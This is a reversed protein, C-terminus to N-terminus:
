RVGVPRIMSIATLLFPVKVVTLLGPIKPQEKRIMSTHKFTPSRRMINSRLDNMKESYLQQVCTRHGFPLDQLHVYTACQLLSVGQM